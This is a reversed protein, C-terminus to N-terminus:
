PPNLIVLSHLFGACFAAAASNRLFGHGSNVVVSAPGMQEPNYYYEACQKIRFDNAKFAPMMAWILYLM